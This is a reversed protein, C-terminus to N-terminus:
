FFLGQEEKRKLDDGEELYVMQGEDDEFLFVPATSYTKSLTDPQPRRTYMTPIKMQALQILFM